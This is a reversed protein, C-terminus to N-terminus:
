LRKRRLILSNTKLQRTFISRFSRFRQYTNRATCLLRVKTDKFLDLCFELSSKKTRLKVFLTSVDNSFIYSVKPTKEMWDKFYALNDLVVQELFKRDFITGTPNNTNNICVIKQNKLIQIGIRKKV